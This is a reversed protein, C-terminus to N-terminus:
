TDKWLDKIKIEKISIKSYIWRYNYLQYKRMKIFELNFLRFKATVIRHHKWRGDKENM